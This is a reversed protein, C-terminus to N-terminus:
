MQSPCASISSTHIHSSPPCPRGPEWWSLQTTNPPSLPPPSGLWLAGVMLAASDRRLRSGIATGLHTELEQQTLQAELPVRKLLKGERASLPHPEEARSILQGWYQMVHLNGTLVTTATNSADM